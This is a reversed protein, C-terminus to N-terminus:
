EVLEFKGTQGDPNMKVQAVYFETQNVEGEPDL